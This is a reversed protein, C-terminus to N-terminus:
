ESITACACNVPRPEIVCHNQLYQLDKRSARVAELQLLQSEETDGSALTEEVFALLASLSYFYDGTEIHFALKSLREFENRPDVYSSVAPEAQLPCFNFISDIM